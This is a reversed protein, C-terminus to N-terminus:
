VAVAAGLAAGLATTDPVAPVATRRGTIDAIMQRCVASRACGGSLTIPEEPTLRAAVEMSGIWPGQTTLSAAAADIERRIQFAVGELVARLLHGPTHALTLGFFSGRADPDGCRGREGMLHPLFLLGDAGPPVSELAREMADFDPPTGAAEPPTLLRRAWNLAS